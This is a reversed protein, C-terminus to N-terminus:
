SFSPIILLYKPQKPEFLLKVNFIIIIIIIISLKVKWSSIKKRMYVAPVIIILKITKPM